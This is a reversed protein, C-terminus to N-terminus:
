LILYFELFKSTKGKFDELWKRRPVKRSLRVSTMIAFNLALLVIVETSM